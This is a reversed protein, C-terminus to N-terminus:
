RNIKSVKDGLWATGNKIRKEHTIFSDDRQRETKYWQTFNWGGDKDAWPMTFGSTKHYLVIGFKKKGKTKKNLPESVPENGEESNHIRVHAAAREAKAQRRKGDPKLHKAWEGSVYTDKRKHAM